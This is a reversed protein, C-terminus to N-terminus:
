NKHAELFSRAMLKVLEHIFVGRYIPTKFFYAQCTEEILPLMDISHKEAQVCLDDYEGGNHWRAPYNVDIKAVYQQEDLHASAEQETDYLERSVVVSTPAHTGYDRCIVFKGFDSPKWYNVLTNRSM